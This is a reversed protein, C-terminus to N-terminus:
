KVLAFRMRAAAASRNGFPPRHGAVPPRGSGFMLWGRARALGEGRAVAAGSAVAATGRRQGGSPGVLGAAELGPQARSGRSPTWGRIPKEDKPGPPIEVIKDTVAEDNFSGPQRESAKREADMLTDRQADAEPDATSPENM